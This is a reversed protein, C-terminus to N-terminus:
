QVDEVHPKEAKAKAQCEPKECVHLMLMEGLGPAAWGLHQGCYRCTDEIPAPAEYSVSM